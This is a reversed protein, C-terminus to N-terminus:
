WWYYFGRTRIDAHISADIIVSWLCDLINGRVSNVTYAGEFL